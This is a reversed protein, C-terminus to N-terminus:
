GPLRVPEFAGKGALDDRTVQRLISRETNKAFISGAVKVLGVTVSSPDGVLSSDVASDESRQM